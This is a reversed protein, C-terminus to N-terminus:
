DLRSGNGTPSTATAPGAAHYPRHVETPIEGVSTSTELCANFPAATTKRYIITIACNLIEIPEKNALDSLKPFYSKYSRVSTLLDDTSVMGDYWLDVIEYGNYGALDFFLRGTYVFYAHDTYGAVPLQHVIHGGIRAADHIVEFSNFQNLVHETTGCNIVVDFAERYENPLRQRNLDFIETKYGAAIDFSLYDVGCYDLLEGAFSQNAGGTVADYASGKAFRDAFTRTEDVPREAAYHSIFNLVQAPQAGYLNSSGIDLIRSGKELLGGVRLQELLSFSIGMTSEKFLIRVGVFDMKDPPSRRGVKGPLM